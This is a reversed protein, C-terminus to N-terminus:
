EIVAPKKHVLLKQFTYICAQTYLFCDMTIRAVEWGTALMPNYKLAAGHTTITLRQSICGPISILTQTNLGSSSPREPAPESTNWGASFSLSEHPFLPAQLQLLFRAHECGYWSRCGASLVCCALSGTLFCVCTVYTCVSCLCTHLGYLMMGTDERDRSM